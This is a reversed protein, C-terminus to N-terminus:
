YGEAKQRDKKMRKLAAEHKKRRKVSPKEYFQRQRCETLIGDDEVQKRLKRLAKDIGQTVFIGNSM